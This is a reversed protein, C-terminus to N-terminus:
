GHCGGATTPPPTARPTPSAAPRRPQRGDQAADDLSGADIGERSRARTSTPRAPRAAVNTRRTPRAVPRSGPSTPTSAASSRRGLRGARRRLVPAPELSWAAAAAVLRHRRRDRAVLLRRLWAFRRPPRPAYRAEEPDIPDNAIAFPVDDPMEAPVPELEGTDGARHGRFLSGPQRDRPARRRLEAAAGVLMPERTTTPAPRPTSSTPSSAPSTTPAAPRSAPASWSSPPTTPAAPPCSTPSGTTTSCAPPATAACCAATAPLRGRRRVPRARGRPATSRAQPHPQPAPPGPGRGRHDPGRRHPEARVHPRPHAPQLEGDRLLYARSDGVHGIASGAATSCRSPRPPAPATSRPTRTSWSASGTTPGTCPAPSRASRPRRGPPTTSRPAAAAIPAHELRHRRPRRRRRRRLRHAAVPRRVRLGPQGQPGPRRGLHRSRLRMALEDAPATMPKRLELITKGIASRPASRSTTPSPSAPAASTPATPPASTRSSGSTAAAAVRAHRTSVYDDDLRIAADTGRGILIPAQTSTPASAPTPGATVLSTPRRHRPAQEAGQGAQAAGAPRRPQRPPARHGGAVRAGFMDSRISRSRSLVFIWLMALYALRILFLTLESM